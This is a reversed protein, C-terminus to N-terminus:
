CSDIPWRAHTKHNINLNMESCWPASHLNTRWIQMFDTTMAVDKSPDFVSGNDALMCWKNFFFITFVLGTSESIIPRLPIM